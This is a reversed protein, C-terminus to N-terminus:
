SGTQQRNQHPNNNLEWYGCSFNSGRVEPFGCVLAVGNAIEADVKILHKQRLRVDGGCTVGHM